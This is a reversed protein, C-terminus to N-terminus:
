VVRKAYDEILRGQVDIVHYSDYVMLDHDSVLLLKRKLREVASLQLGKKQSNKGEKHEELLEKVAEDYGELETPPVQVVEYSQQM